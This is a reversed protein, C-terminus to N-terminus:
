RAVSDRQGARVSGATDQARTPSTALTTRISVRSRGWEDDIPGRRRFEARDLERGNGCNSRSIGSSIRAHVTNM